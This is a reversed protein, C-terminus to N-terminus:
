ECFHQIADDMDSFIVYPFGSKNSESEWFKGLVTHEDRVVVAIKWTKMEEPMESATFTVIDMQNMLSPGYDVIREDVVIKRLTQKQIEDVYQRLLTKYEEMSVIPGEGTLLLYGGKSESTVSSTM